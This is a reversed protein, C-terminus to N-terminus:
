SLRTSGLVRLRKATWSLVSVSSAAWNTPHREGKKVTLLGPPAAIGYDPGLIELLAGLITSKGNAGSGYLVPLMQTSVDGTLCIGCVMQWFRILTKDGAFITDLCKLWTACKAGKFYDVPM